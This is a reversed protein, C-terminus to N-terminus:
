EPTDAQTIQRMPVRIDDRSGTVYIKQSNPFPQVANADVRASQESFVNSKISM